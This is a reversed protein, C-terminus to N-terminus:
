RPRGLAALETALDALSLILDAGAYQLACQPMARALATDPDQVWALGGAERVAKLGRAGDGNAGTLVIGLLKERYAYAASEFLVDVSPRCFNVPEDVSLALTRAPEVLLHYGPPAVYVSGAQM